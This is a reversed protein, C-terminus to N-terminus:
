TGTVSALAPGAEVNNTNDYNSNHWVVTIRPMTGNILEGFTWSNVWGYNAYTSGDKWTLTGTQEVGIMSNLSTIFDPDFAGTINTPGTEILEQPAATMYDTNWMTTQDIPDGADGGGLTISIEFLAADTDLSFTWTSRYGNKLKRGTPTVRATPTPAAM